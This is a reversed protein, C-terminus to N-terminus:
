IHILSLYLFDSLVYLARLPLLSLAYWLAYGLAYATNRLLKKM